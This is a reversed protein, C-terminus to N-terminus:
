VKRCKCKKTNLNVGCESCLGKCSSECKFDQPLHTIIEQELLDQINIDGYKSIKYEEHDANDYVSFIAETDFSIGQSTDILCRYCRGKIKYKVQFIGLIKGREVKQISGNVRVESDLKFDTMNAIDWAPVMQSINIIDSSTNALADSVNFIFNSIHKKM